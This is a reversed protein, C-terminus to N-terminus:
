VFASFEAQFHLVYGTANTPTTSAYAGASMESGAVVIQVVGNNQTTGPLYTYYDKLAGSGTTVTSWVWVSSPLGLAPCTGGLPFTDGDTSYSGALTITGDVIFKNLTKDINTVVATMSM